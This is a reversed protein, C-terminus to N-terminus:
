SSSAAPSAKADRRAVLMGVLLVCAGALAVAACFVGLSAFGPGAVLWGGVTTASIWGVSNFTVNLGLVTGRVSEPVASLAAMFAPRGVANALSYAFGLVISIELGPTWFLLPLAVVGTLVLSLGYFGEKSPLRDAFQGGLMNGFLNGLAVLLLVFALVDLSVHYTAILFTAFYVSMAAFCVRETTGSILLALVRPTLITQLPAAGAAERGTVQFRGRRPTLALMALGVLITILAFVIHAGRWGMQAGILTSIPVGLVLSLSQGTMVWGLSRGRGSPEVHDSVTAFVTGMFSGGGVGGALGWFVAEPYTRAVGVGAMAVGVAIVAGVLIPKRGVRDSVTGAVLSMIGWSVAMIAMLNAVSTLDTELDRAMDLLFPSRTAGSSTTLFCAATLAWLMLTIRQGSVGVYRGAHDAAALPGPRM